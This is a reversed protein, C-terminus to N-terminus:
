WSSGSSFAEGSDMVVRLFYSPAGESWESTGVEVRQLSSLPHQVRSTRLIPARATYTFNSEAADFLMRTSLGAVAAFLLLLSLAVAGASVLAALLFFPHWYSQWSIRLLLEYPALLPFLSLAALVWRAGTRLPTRLELRGNGETLQVL